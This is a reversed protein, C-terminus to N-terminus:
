KPLKLFAQQGHKTIYEAKAEPSMGSRKLGGGNGASGSGTAGGGSATAPFWHPAKEKMDELWESPAYPTKGDKGPVPHGGEDLQVAQGNADLRFMSRGRFLADEIAQPHLGAKAAAARISDDLVRGEYAQMRKEADVARQEAATLKKSFDDKLRETRKNLVEDVKGSAILQAEEDDSFRQLISRVASPDIDKYEAKFSDFEGKLSKKEKLLEANNARLAEIQKQLDAADPAAGGGAPEGGEGAENLFRRAPIKQFIM